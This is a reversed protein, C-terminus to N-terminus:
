VYKMRSRYEAFLLSSGLLIRNQVLPYTELDTMFSFPHLIKMGFEKEGQRMRERKRGREEAERHKGQETACDGTGLPEAKERWRKWSCKLHDTEASV